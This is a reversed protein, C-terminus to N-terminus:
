TQAKQLCYPSPPSELWPAWLAAPWTTGERSVSSLLFFPIVAIGSEGTVGELVSGCLGLPTSGPQGLKRPVPTLHADSLHPSFDEETQGKGVAVYKKQAEAGLRDLPSWIGAERATPRPVERPSLATKAKLTNPPLCLCLPHCETSGVCVPVPSQGHIRPHVFLHFLSSLVCLDRGSVAQRSTKSSSVAPLLPCSPGGRVQSEVETPETGRGTGERQGM